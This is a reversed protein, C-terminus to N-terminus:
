VALPHRDDRRSNGVVSEHLPGCVPISLNKRSGIPVAQENDPM